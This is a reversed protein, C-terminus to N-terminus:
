RTEKTHPLAALWGRLDAASEPLLTDVITGAADVAVLYPSGPIGLADFLPGGDPVCRARPAGAAVGDCGGLSVVVLAEERGAAVLGGLVDACTSCSPSSFLLLGSGMPRLSALPGTSPLAFGTLATIDLGSGSRTDTDAATRQIMRMLGAVAIALLAIAIWSLLVAASTFSM